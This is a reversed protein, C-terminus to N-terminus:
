YALIIPQKNDNNKDIVSRDAHLVAMGAFQPSTLRGFDSNFLTGNGGDPAGMHDWTYTADVSQGLWTWFCRLSDPNYPVVNDIDMFSVWQDKGWATQRDVVYSAERCTAYRPMMSFLLDEINNEQLEILEDEDINGTNKLVYETIYYNNHYQQSYAYVTRKYEVGLYSNFINVLKREYSVSNSHYTDVFDPQIVTILIM